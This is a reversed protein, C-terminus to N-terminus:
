SPVMENPVVLFPIVPHFGIKKIVPENILKELRSHKYNVMALLDIELYEIFEKIEIEKSNYDPMWHFSHDYGELYESLKIYNYKQIDDLKEEKNIHLVRIKSNYLKSFAKIEGLAKEGFFRKYDTAFAVQRPVMFHYENPVILLPCAKIKKLVKVTNSGFFIEKAGTAGKTGMVILDIKSKIISAKIADTLDQTSLILQVDHKPNTHSVKIKAKLEELENMANAKMIKLLKNSFNSMMSARIAISNLLYFNCEKEAYLNLIYLMGSWSNDSFDTPLLINKKM